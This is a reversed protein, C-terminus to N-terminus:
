EWRTHIRACERGDNERALMHWFEVAAAGGGAGAEAPLQYVSMTLKDKSFCEHKFTIVLEKLAREGILARPASEIAWATFHTNNVHANSDIDEDRVIVPLTAVPAAGSFDPAKPNHETLVFEPRPPNSDLLSQPTRTMKRTAVDILLWWTSGKVIPENKEDTIYFERRSFLRDSVSHWTHVTLRSGVTAKALPTVQMRTLVWTVGSGALDEYGCALTRADLGAAEQFYDCLTHLPVAGDPGLEYYRIRFEERTM